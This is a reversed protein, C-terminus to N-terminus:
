VRSRATPMLLPLARIPQDRLILLGSGWRPTSEYLYRLGSLIAWRPEPPTAEYLDAFKSWMEALDSDADGTEVANLLLIMTAGGFGANNPTQAAIRLADKMDTQGARLLGAQDSLLARFQAFLDASQYGYNARSIASLIDTTLGLVLKRLAEKVEIRGLTLLDARNPVEDLRVGGLDHLRRFGNMIAARECAGALRYHDQFADWNWYLDDQGLGNQLRDALLIATATVFADFDDDPLAAALLLSDHLEVSTPTAIRANEDQILSTLAAEAAGDAMRGFPIGSAIRELTAPRALRAVEVLDQIAQLTRFVGSTSNGDSMLRHNRLMEPLIHNM